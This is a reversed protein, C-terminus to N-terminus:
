NGNILSALFGPRYCVKHHCIAPVITGKGPSSRPVEPFVLHLKGTPSLHSGSGRTEADGCKTPRGEQGRLAETGENLCRKRGGRQGKERVM